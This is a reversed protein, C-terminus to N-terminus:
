VILDAVAWRARPPAAATAPGFRVVQVLVRDTPLGLRRDLVARASPDDTLAAMPWMAWGRATASLCLRLWARGMAVRDETLPRHIAAIVTASTTAGAEATLAGSLGLRDLMPWLPGLALGAAFATVPGLRLAARSMGDSAHRPHRPSLRMWHLLEARVPRLRMQALGARDGLAAIWAKDAASTFLVADGPRWDGPLGPGFGGRHTFRQGLLGALPPLAVLPGPVIRAALRCGPMAARDDQQWLPTVTAGQGAEALAPVTAEVAAGTSLAADLGLPDGAALTTGFGCGILLAGGQLRWRAPQINHVSPALAARAVIRHFMDIQM